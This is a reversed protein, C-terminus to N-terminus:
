LSWADLWICTGKNEKLKQERLEITDAMTLVTGKHNETPTNTNSNVGNNINNPTSTSNPTDVTSSSTPPLKAPTNYASSNASNNNSNNASVKSNPSSVVAANEHTQDDPATTTPFAASLPTTGITTLVGPIHVGIVFILLSFCCFLILNDDINDTAEFISLIWCNSYLGCDARMTDLFCFTNFTLLWVVFLSGGM